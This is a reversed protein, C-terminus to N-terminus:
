CVCVCFRLLQRRVLDSLAAASLAQASVHGLLASDTTKMGVWSLMSFFIPIGLMITDNVDRWITSKDDNTPVTPTGKTSSANGNRDKLLPQSEGATAEVDKSSM